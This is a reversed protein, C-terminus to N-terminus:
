KVKIAEREPWDLVRVSKDSYGTRFIVWGEVVAMGGYM